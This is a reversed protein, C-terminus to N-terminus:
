SAQAPPDPLQQHTTLVAAYLDGLKAIRAPMSNMTFDEVKLKGHSGAAVEDWSLPASVTGGRRARASYAAATTRGLSNQAYDIMIRGAREQKAALHTFREPWRRQFDEALAQAWTRLTDFDYGAALPVALHMGKGGSTKPWAQLGSHELADRLDLAARCVDKFAVDPGPDLDFLLVDPQEPASIRSQWSHLEIAARNALWALTAEETAIIRWNVRDGAGSTLHHPWTVVWDPTGRPAAQLFIPAKAIGDPYLKLTLPRERLHPLITPAVARYYAILDGKTLGDDPWLLKDENSLRLRRGGIVMERKTKSGAM